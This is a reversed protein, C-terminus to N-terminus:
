IPNTFSKLENQICILRDKVINMKTTQGHVKLYGFLAQDKARQNELYKKYTAAPLKGSSIQNGLIAKNKTMLLLKSHMAEPIKAGKDSLQKIMASYSAIKKDLYSAVILNGIDDPDRVDIERLIAPLDTLKEPLVADKGQSIVASTQKKKVEEQSILKKKPAIQSRPESKLVKSTVEKERFPPYLADIIVEKIETKVMEKKKTPKKIKFLLETKLKGGDDQFLVQIKGQTGFKDLKLKLTALTDSFVFGKSKLTFVAEGQNIHRISKSFNLRLTEPNHAAFTGKANEEKTAVLYEIKYSSNGIMKQDPTYEIVLENTDVDDQIVEKEEEVTEVRFLPVQSWPNKMIEKIKEIMKKCKEAKEVHPIAAAKMAKDKKSKQVYETAITRHQNLQSQLNDILKQLEKIRADTEQGYMLEPTLPPHIKILDIKKGSKILDLIAKLHRYKKIFEEAKKPQGNNQFYEAADRYDKMRLSVIDYQGKDVKTFDIVEEQIVVEKIDLDEHKKEETVKKAIDKKEEPEPAPVSAPAPVPAPASASATQDIEAPKPQEMPVDSPIKIEEQPPPPAQEQKILQIRKEVRKINDASAHGAKLTELLTEEYKLEVAIDHMYKDQSLFGQQINTVLMNRRFEIHGKKEEYFGGEEPNKAQAKKTDMILMEEDMVSVAAMKDLNHINLEIDEMTAKSFDPVPGKKVEKKPAQKEEKKGPAQTPAPGEEKKQTATPKSQPNQKKKEEEENQQTALQPFKELIKKKEEELKKKAVLHKKAEEIKNEKKCKLASALCKKTELNIKELEEKAEAEGEEVVDDLEKMLNPDELDKENVELKDLDAESIDPKNGTDFKYNKAEKELERIEPDEDEQEENGLEKAMKKVEDEWNM